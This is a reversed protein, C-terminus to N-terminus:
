KFQMPVDLPLLDGVRLPAAGGWDLLQKFTAADTATSATAHESFTDSGVADSVEVTTLASLPAPVPEADVGVGM